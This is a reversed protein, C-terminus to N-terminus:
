NNFKHLTFTKYLAPLMMGYARKEKEYILQSEKENKFLFFFTMSTQTVNPATRLFNKREKEASSHRSVVIM